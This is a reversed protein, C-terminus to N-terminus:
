FRRRYGAAARIRELAMEQAAETPLRGGTSMRDILETTNAHIRQAIAAFAQAQDGGRYETAACIVGGANAIIGPVALVGRQHLVTEAAETVAINAGSLVIRAHVREANGVNIVDPQAAPILVDCDLTLLEDTTLMKVEPAQALTRGSQKVAALAAVDLGQPDFVAGSRDSVAVIVAGREALFRAAHRGVAGFGQIAVHSGALHLRGTDELAQACIALGYGTAGVEDLPIGGLAQPLGVARGNEDHIWAMATEDTGMDPGPVYDNMDRIAYAFARVVQETDARAFEAPTHIGSKGGGHPLGAAANKLTMARALRIVEAASVDSNMRVGGIAPGLTTDDVTVVARCGAPLRLITVSQPDHGDVLWSIMVKNM